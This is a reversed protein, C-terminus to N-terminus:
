KEKNELNPVGEIKLVVILVQLEFLIKKILYETLMGHVFSLLTEM